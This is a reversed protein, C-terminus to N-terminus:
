KDCIDCTRKGTWKGNTDYCKRIRNKHGCHLRNDEYACKYCLYEGTFKQASDLDKKWIPKDNIGLRTKDSGCLRCRKKKSIRKKKGQCTHCKWEGTWEGNEDRHRAWVPTGDRSYTTDRGCICCMRGYSRPLNPLIGDYKDLFEICM